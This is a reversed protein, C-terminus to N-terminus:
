VSTPTLASPEAANAIAIAQLPLVGVTGDDTATAVNAM